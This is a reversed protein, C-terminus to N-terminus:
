GPRAAQAALGAVWTNRGHLQMLGPYKDRIAESREADPIVASHTFLCYAIHFPRERIESREM